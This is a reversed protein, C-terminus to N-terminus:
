DMKRADQVEKIKNIINVNKFHKGLNGPAQVTFEDWIM